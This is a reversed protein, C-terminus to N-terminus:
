DDPELNLTGNPRPAIENSNGAPSEPVHTSLLVGGASASGAAATVSATIEGNAPGGRRSTARPFRRTQM